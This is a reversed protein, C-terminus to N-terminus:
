TLSLTGGVQTPLVIMQQHTECGMELSSQARFFSTGLSDLFVQLIPERKRVAQQTWLRSVTFRNSGVSDAKLFMTRFDRLRPFGGIIISTTLAPTANLMEMTSGLHTQLTTAKASLSFVFFAFKM